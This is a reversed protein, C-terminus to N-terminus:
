LDTRKLDFVKISNKKTQQQQFITNLVLASFAEKM